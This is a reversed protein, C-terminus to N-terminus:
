LPKIGQTCSFTSFMNLAALIEQLVHINHNDSNYPQINQVVIKVNKVYQLKYYIATLPFCTLIILNSVKTRMISANFSEM